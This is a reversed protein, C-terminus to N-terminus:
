MESLAVLPDLKAARRAPIYCAALAVAAFTGAAPPRSRSSASIRRRCAVSACYCREDIGSLTMSGGTTAALADCATSQTQWDLFNLASIPNRTGGPPKETVNVLRDRHPYPLPRLLVGDVFSAALSM